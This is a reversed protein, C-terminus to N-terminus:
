EQRDHIAVAGYFRHGLLRECTQSFRSDSTGGFNGGMMFHGPLRQYRGTDSNFYAPVLRLCDRVHNELMVAPTYASPNFPGEVNVVCFEFFKSSIGNNTCDGFRPDANRYVSIHLGM